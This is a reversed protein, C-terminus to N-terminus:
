PVGVRECETKPASAIAQLALPVAAISVVTQFEALEKASIPFRLAALVGCLHRANLMNEREFSIWLREYYDRIDGGGAEPMESLSHVDGNHERLWRVVYHLYLPLGESKSYINTVSASELTLLNKDVLYSEAEARTFLPVGVHHRQRGDWLALPEWNRLEQSGVVIVVGNPLATPLASLVSDKVTQDREAHDLGDLLIVLKKGQGTLQQGLRRLVNVFNRESYDFRRDLLDPFLEQLASILNVRLSEAEIRLRAMDDQPGVFCYYRCVAFQSEDALEDFFESLSTSKGSGPLGNVVVYGGPTSEIESRLATRFGGVNVFTEKEVPFVQPVLFRRQAARFVDDLIAPTIPDHVEIAHREVLEKLQHFVNRDSVGLRRDLLETEILQRLDALSPERLQFRFAALFERFLRNANSGAFGCASLLAERFKRAAGRMRGDVFLQTFKGDAGVIRELQSDRGRNSLLEVTVAANPYATQANLWGKAFRGFYTRREPSTFDDPVYVALNDVSYKAQIARVAGAQVVVIDDAAQTKEYELFVNFEARRIYLELVTRLAQLDQFEDGKRRSSGSMPLCKVCVTEHALPVERLWACAFPCEKQPEIIRISEYPDSSIKRSRENSKLGSQTEGLM